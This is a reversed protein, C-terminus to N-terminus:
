RPRVLGTEIEGGPGLELWRCAPGALDPTFETRGPLSNAVTSPSGLLRVGNREAEFDQHVHGWAIGRVEQHRDVVAFFVQAEQLPYRDIWPSGVALPQHHLALLAHAATSERLARELRELTDAPLRGPM